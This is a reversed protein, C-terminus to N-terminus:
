KNQVQFWHPINRKTWTAFGSKAACYYQRYSQVPDSCKFTDPMCLAFPTSTMPLCPENDVAWEIVEQTKHTQKGPRGYRYTYEKCLEMGLTALWRYNEIGSRTWIAAPHNKHTLRYPPTQGRPAMHHASCLLQGTEVILKVVHKDCHYQACRAQDLDLVFINM